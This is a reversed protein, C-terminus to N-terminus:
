SIRWNRSEPWRVSGWGERDERHLWLVRIEVHQMKGLGRRCVFSKAARSDTCLKIVNGFGGDALECVFNQLVKGRAVAAVVAYFEAEASSLAYAGQTFPWTKIAHKGLM